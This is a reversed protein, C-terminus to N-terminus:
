LAVLQLKQVYDQIYYTLQKRKYQMVFRPHALPVIHEFFGYEANLLKVYQFNKGEGLVFCIKRSLGFNLQTRLSQLIFPKLENELAPIDYYNLNKGDKTFGLPSVSSFYFKAYFNQLGGYAAIVQHIFDASLETRKHFENEIGCIEELKVPDTFPIGTLGGGLRGPNIGIILARPNNDSYFKRYFAECYTFTNTNGYPNLVAVDKPLRAEISLAKLFGLISNCWM